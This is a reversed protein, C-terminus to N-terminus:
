SGILYKCGEQAWMTEISDGTTSTYAEIVRNNSILFWSLKSGTYGGFSNRANVDACVAYGAKIGGGLMPSKRYMTRPGALFVVRKSPPDKLVRDLYENITKKYDTPHSGYDLAALEQETPATVCGALSSFSVILLGILFSRKLM